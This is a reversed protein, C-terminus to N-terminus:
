CGALPLRDVSSTPTGITINFAALGFLTRASWSDKRLPGILSLVLVLSGLGLNMTADFMARAPYGFGSPM